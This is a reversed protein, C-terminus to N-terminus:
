GFLDPASARDLAKAFVTPLAARAAEIPMWRYPGGADVRATMVTLTLSFHTFVHEVAGAERWDAETPAPAAPEGIAWESTPLGLMGGLLGKEPRTEVAVRGQDDVLVYAIGRRHPREAKKTKIPFQAPDGTALGRCEGAVPCTGCSPSKPRCVTAGLDMLAQAWDGPREDTVFLGALRRLEPRAAPVPTEVAFLRAMVREVNGDVVNAARDFAISAVAAATYAGVGPLALLAAETDPFVGGHQGAVARACALLNRARAYYGLGAWAGMVEADHAAALDSVTPWRMTFAHFYPTAHPVTTQQLMVESLWVRYPETRPAGVAARWPLSRAHADYWALLRSRILDIDPSVDPM